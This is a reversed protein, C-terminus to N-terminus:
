LRLLHGDFAGEEKFRRHLDIRTHEPVDLRPCRQGLDCDLEAGEGIRVALDPELVAPQLNTDGVDEFAAGDGM